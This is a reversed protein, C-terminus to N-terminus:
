IHRVFARIRWDDGMPVIEQIDLPHAQNIFELPLDFLPRATSGLLKPAMYIIWEDVLGAAVFRGALTAGAELLVENCGEQALKQLLATLDVGGALSPFGWIDAGLHPRNLACTAVAVRGPPRLLRAEPPTRLRTDVVVRLPQRPNDGLEPVRVNLAPDDQLVTGIGTVIACSRARWHQVDARAPEGTIWFSEGSKMATRGDLSMAMKCRVWPRGLTMRQIFGPNLQRAQAELVPGRVSVGAAALRALGQGSVLPNPDQMAYVVAKIGAALLAETCPGTRGQHNCPELTVYATAGPATGGAAKLANVEAHAEGARAHFGEGILEGAANVLVCGVRPNPTSTNLGKLALEIARAMWYEDGVLDADQTM